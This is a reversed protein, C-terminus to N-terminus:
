ITTATTIKANLNEKYCKKEYVFIMINDLITERWKMYMINFRIIYRKVKQIAEIERNHCNKKKEGKRDLM